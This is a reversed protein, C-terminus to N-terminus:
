GSAFGTGTITINVTGSPVPNPTISSLTPTAGLLLPAALTLWLAVILKPTFRFNRLLASFRSQPIGTAAVKVQM